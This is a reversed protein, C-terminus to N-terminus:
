FIMILGDCTYSVHLDQQPGFCLLALRNLSSKVLMYRRMALAVAVCRASKKVEIILYYPRCKM